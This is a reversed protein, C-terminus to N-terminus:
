MFDGYNRDLPHISAGERLLPIRDTTSSYDIHMLGNTFSISHHYTVNQLVCQLVHQELVYPWPSSSNFPLIPLTTNIVYGIWLSPEKTFSGLMSENATNVYKWDLPAGDKDEEIDSFSTYIAQGSPALQSKAVATNPANDPADQCSYWPGRFSLQYSCNSAEICPNAAQLPGFNSLLALTSIRQLNMSPSVYYAISMNSPMLDIYSLGQRGDNIVWADVPASINANNDHTFEITQINDCITSTNRIRSVSTLTAPSVIVCLPLTRDWIVLYGFISSLITGVLDTCCPAHNNHSESSARLQPIWPSWLM